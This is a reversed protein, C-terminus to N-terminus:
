LSQNGCAPSEVPEHCMRRLECIEGEASIYKCNMTVNLYCLMLLDEREGMGQIEKKTKM